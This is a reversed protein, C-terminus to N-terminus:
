AEGALLTLPPRFARMGPPQASEPNKRAARQIQNERTEMHITSRTRQATALACSPWLRAHNQNNRSTTKHITRPNTEGRGAVPSPRTAGGARVQCRSSRATSSRRWQSHFFGLRRAPVRSAQAEPSDCLSAVSITTLIASSPGNTWGETAPIPGDVVAVPNEIASSAALLHDTTAAAVPAPPETRTLAGAALPGLVHSLRAPPVLPCRDARPVVCRPLLPPSCFRGSGYRM